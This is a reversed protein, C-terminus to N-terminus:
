FYDIRCGNMKSELSEGINIDEDSTRRQFEEFSKNHRRRQIYDLIVIYGLTLAGVGYIIPVLINDPYEM